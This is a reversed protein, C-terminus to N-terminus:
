VRSCSVHHSMISEELFIMENTVLHFLFTFAQPCKPYVLQTYMHTHYGEHLYVCANDSAPYEIVCPM